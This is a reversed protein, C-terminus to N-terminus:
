GGVTRADVVFAGEENVIVPNFDLEQVAPGKRVLWDATREVVKVLAARDGACGGRYGELLQWLRRHREILDAVRGPHTPLLTARVDALLETLTGGLGVVLLHGLQQDWKAGVLVEVGSVSRQLLIRGDGGHEGLVASLRSWAARLAAEGDIGLIVGGVDSKHVLARSDIKAVLPYGIAAAASLVEDDSAAPSLLAYPAIPIGAGSLEDFLEGPTAVTSGEPARPMAGDAFSAIVEANARDTADGLADVIASSARVARQPDPYVFCGAENLTDRALEPVAVWGVSVPVPLGASVVCALGEAVGVSKLGGAGSALFVEDYDGSEAVIKVIEPLKVALRSTDGFTGTVDIPNALHSPLNEAGTVTRLKAVVEGTLEPLEWGAETLDDSTAVGVGGSTGVVVARKGRDRRERRVGAFRQGIDFLQEYSTVLQVGSEEVLAELVTADSAVRGTHSQAAAQGAASRGVKLAAVPKGLVRARALSRRLLAGDSLGELFLLVAETEDDDVVHELLEPLSLAAENGTSILHSYGFPLDAYLQLMFSIAAGSQSLFALGGPPVGHDSGSGFTAILEANGNMLGMSNPGLVPLALRRSLERLTADFRTPGDPDDGKYSGLVLVSKAGAAAAEELLAPVTPAPTAVVVLDPAEQLDGLSGVVRQGLLAQGALRQNVPVVRRGTANKLLNEYVRGGYWSTEPSSAGVVAVTRPSTLAIFSEHQM